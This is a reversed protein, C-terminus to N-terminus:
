FPVGEGGIVDPNYGNNQQDPKPEGTFSAQEVILETVYHKSGNKDDFTRSQLHGTVAIMRGKGFYRTIFEANQRWAVCSIFDTQRSGDKEAFNREVAVTFQCVNTGSPTVRMDLDHTIRGMIITSNIM